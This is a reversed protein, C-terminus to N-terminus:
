TKIMKYEPRFYFHHAVAAILMETLVVSQLMWGTRYTMNHIFLPYDLCITLQMDTPREREWWFM